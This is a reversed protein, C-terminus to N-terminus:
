AVEEAPLETHCVFREWLQRAIEPTPTTNVMRLQRILVNVYRLNGGTLTHVTQLVKQSFQPRLAQELDELSAPPVEYRFGVRQAIPAHMSLIRELSPTGVLCIPRECADAIARILDAHRLSLRDAEDIILYVGVDALRRGIAIAYDANRIHSPAGVAEGITELLVRTSQVARPPCEVAAVDGAQGAYVEVALTKGSGAPGIILGLREPGDLHRIAELARLTNQFPRVNWVQIKRPRRSPRWGM